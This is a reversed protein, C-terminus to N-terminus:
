REKPRSKALADREVEIPAPPVASRVNARLAGNHNPRGLRDGDRTTVDGHWAPPYADIMYKDGRIASRLKALV